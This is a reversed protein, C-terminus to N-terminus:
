AVSKGGDSVWGSVELESTWRYVVQALGGEMYLNHSFSMPRSGNLWFKQFNQRLVLHIPEIWGSFKRLLQDVKQSSGSKGTPGTPIKTSHIAGM